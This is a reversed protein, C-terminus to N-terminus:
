IRKIKINRKQPTLRKLIKKLTLDDVQSKIQGTQIAQVMVVLLQLAKEKHAAKLNGYRELAEKSLFQRLIAEMHEIQQQVQSEEQAKQQLREQQLQMLEELKKKRIEDLSPM